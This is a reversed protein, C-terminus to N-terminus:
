IEHAIHINGINTEMTTIDYTKFSVKDKWDLQKEEHDFLLSCFNLYRSFLFHKLHFLHFTFANKMM